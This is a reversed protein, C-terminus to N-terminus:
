PEQALFALVGLLVVLGGGIIVALRVRRRERADEEKM